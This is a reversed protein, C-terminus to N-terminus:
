PEKCTKSIIRSNQRQANYNCLYEMLKKKSEVRKERSITIIIGNELVISNSNTDFEHFYLLNILYSRHCRYFDIEPLITELEKLRKISIFYDEEDTVNKKLLFIKTYHGDAQCYMVNETEVVRAGKITHILIKM